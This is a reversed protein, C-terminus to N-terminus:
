REAAPVGPPAAEPAGAAPPQRRGGGSGGAVAAGGAAHAPGHLRRVGRGAGGGRRLHGRVTGAPENRCREPIAPQLRRLCPSPGTHSDTKGLGWFVAGPAFRHVWPAELTGSWYPPKPLPSATGVQM